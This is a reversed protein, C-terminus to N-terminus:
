DLHPLIQARILDINDTWDHHRAGPVITLTLRGSENLTRLGFTDNVYYPQETLNLMRGMSDQSGWVGTQWPEIGGDSAAGSGVCFVARRLRAFNRKFRVVDEAAATQGNYLPLVTSDKIFADLHHPDRWMNADSVVDQALRTYAVRWM